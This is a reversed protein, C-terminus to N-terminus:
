DNFIEKFTLESFGDPWEDILEGSEDIELEFIDAGFNTPQVYIVSLM